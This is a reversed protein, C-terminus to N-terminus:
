QVPVPARLTVNAAWYRLSRYLSAVLDPVPPFRVGDPLEGRSDPLHSENAMGMAVANGLRLQLRLQAPLLDGFAPLILREIVEPDVITPRVVERGQEAAIDLCADVFTSLPVAASGATIWYTGTLGGEVAARLCRAVHDRPLFDVWCTAPAPLLHANGGVIAKAAAYLGQGRFRTTVGTDTDGILIPLRYIATPVRAAGAVTEAARKTTQYANTPEASHSGDRGRVYFTSIHHLPVGADEALRAAARTGEVNVRELEAQPWATTTIAGAHLVGDIRGLLSRYAGPPLGLRDQTLDGAVATGSVPTRHQLALCREPGFATMVADGLVGSAGTVMLM